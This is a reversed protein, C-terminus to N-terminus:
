LFCMKSIEYEGLINSKKLWKGVYLNKRGASPIMIKKVGWVFGYEPFKDVASLVQEILLSTLLEAGITIIFVGKDSNDIFTQMEVLLPRNINDFQLGAVQIVNAPVSHVYDFAPHSNVLVVKVRDNAGEFTPKVHAAQLAEHRALLAEQVRLM